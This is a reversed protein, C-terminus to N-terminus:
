LNDSCTVELNWAKLTPAFLQDTSPELKSLVRLFPRHRAQAQTWLADDVVASGNQTDPTGQAAAVDQGVLDDPGPPSTFKLPVIPATDLGALTDATQAWFSVRSDSPTSTQWSWHGWLLSTGSPCIGTADYDRVFTGPDYITPPPAPPQVATKIDATEGSWRWYDLLVTSDWVHDGQDWTALKIDIVEGGVVPAQTYLWDTAGGCTQNQCTGDFGTGALALSSCTPCAPEVFFAINVSVPDGNGDFSINSSNSPPNVPTASSGTLLAVFHDNYATCVWEPYESSFYNFSYSFSKANTPTRIKLELASSDYAQGSSTPCGAANKPFGPPYNCATGANYSAYQGNPNTYGSDGPARATGSSLAAMRSSALPLNASGFSALIGHGRSHPTSVGDAQVLAAQIVGWTKAAGTAGSTTTQCLDIAKAFDYANSSAMALGGDCVEVADDATGTCDEDVGNGPFDYAGANISADCDLCDGADGAYGDGDHDFSDGFCAFCAGHEDAYCDVKCVTELLATCDTDWGVTCCTPLVGCIQSVCSPEGVKTADCGAGLPTGVECISHGCTGSSGGTCPADVLGPAGPLSLGDPTEVIGSDPDSLGGPEDPFSKCMPDCVNDACDSPGGLSKTTAGQASDDHELTITNNLVCPAYEGNTCVSDGVGCVVTDGVRSHVDHCLIREGETDCACGPAPGLDCRSSRGTGVQEADPPNDLVPPQADACAALLVVLAFLFPRRM